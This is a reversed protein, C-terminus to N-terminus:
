VSSNENISLLAKIMETIAKAHQGRDKKNMYSLRYLEKKLKPYECFLEEFFLLDEELISRKHERISISDCSNKEFLTQIFLSQPIQYANMMRVLMSSEIGSSDQEYKSISSQSINLRKAMEQQSINLVNKRYSRLLENLKM